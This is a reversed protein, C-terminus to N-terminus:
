CYGNAMQWKGNAMQRIWPYTRHNGAQGQWRCCWAECRNRWRRHKIERARRVLRYVSAFVIGPLPALPCQCISINTSYFVGLRPLNGDYIASVRFFINIEAIKLSKISLAISTHINTLHFEASCFVLYIICLSLINFVSNMLELAICLWTFGNPQCHYGTITDFAVRM